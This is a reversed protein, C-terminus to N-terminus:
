KKRRKSKKGAKKGAKKAAKKRASKRGGPDGGDAEVEPDITVTYDAHYLTLTYPVIGVPNVVAYPTTDGQPINKTTWSFPTPGKPSTFDVLMRADPCNWIVEDGRMTYTKARMTKVTLKHSKLTVKVKQQAM